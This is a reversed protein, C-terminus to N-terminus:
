SYAHRKELIEEKLLKRVDSDKLKTFFEDKWPKNELIGFVFEIPFGYNMKSDVEKISKILAEPTNIMVEKTENTLIPFRGNPGFVILVNDRNSIVFLTDGKKCYEKKEKEKGGSYQDVLSTVVIFTSAVQDSYVM